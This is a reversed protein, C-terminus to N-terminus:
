HKGEHYVGDAHYHGAAKVAGGPASAALKLEYAGHRVVAAGAEVGTVEVWEGDSAGPSVETRVFVEGDDADRVFVVRELGDEVICSVPVAVTQPDPEVTVIELVGPLGPSAWAPIEALTLYLPRTRMDADASWAVTLKGEAKGQAAAATWAPTVFGRLGDRVNALESVIGDARFWLGDGRAIRVIEAGAQVWAGIGCDCNVGSCNGTGAEVHEVVGPARADVFLAGEEERCYALVAERAARASQLSQEAREVEVTKIKLAMVIEANQTGAANLRGLRESLMQLEVQALKLALEADRIQGSQQIWTPSLIRFLADGEEVRQQPKVYVELAGDLVAGYSRRADPRMEFRGPFRVTGLVARNEASV